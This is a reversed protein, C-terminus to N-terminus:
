ERNGFIRLLYLFMNIFDLYLTLSGLLAMKQTQESIGYYSSYQLMQKIKQTDYATLGVFIIVGLYNLIVAMTSSALFINIVSAIILGILLMILMRGLVSLDKKIFFGVLSMAGFTGATILFTQAISETTYAMFIFSMTVGNLISYAAFCLSASFFSMRMIRASLYIVLAIEAIMIGWFLLKNTMLMTFLEANKAVGMATLATMLLGACMWAYVNRMLKSFATESVVTNQTNATNNFYNNM